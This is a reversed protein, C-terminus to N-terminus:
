QSVIRGFSANAIEAPDLWFSNSLAAVVARRTSLYGVHARYGPHGGSHHFYTGWATPTVFLGLGYPARSGNAFATPSTMEELSSPELLLGGFLAEFWRTLDVANSVIGGTSWTITPHYANTVDFVTRSENRWYGHVLNGRPAEFGSLYTHQLALPDLLERRLVVQFSEGTAAEIILGLMIYNTNSYAWQAGPSFDLGHNAALEVLRRPAREQSEHGLVEGDDHYDFIGSTHSLLHRITIESARPFDAFWREIPEDLRISGREVLRLVLVATFTKTVSAINFPDTPKLAMGQRSTRGSAGAWSWDPMSVAVTAGIADDQTRAAQLIQDLDGTLAGPLTAVEVPASPPVTAEGPRVLPPMGCGVALTVLMVTKM